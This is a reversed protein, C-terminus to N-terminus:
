TDRIAAILEVGTMGPMNVDTIIVAPRHKSFKELAESGDVAYILSVGPLRKLGIEILKRTTASDDVVLITTKEVAGHDEMHGLATLAGESLSEGAGFSGTRHRDRLRRWRP